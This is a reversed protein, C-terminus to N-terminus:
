KTAKPAFNSCNVCTPNHQEKSGEPPDVINGDKDCEVMDPHSALAKTWLHVIKGEITRIYRM